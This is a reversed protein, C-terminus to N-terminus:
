GHHIRGLYEEAYPVRVELGEITRWQVYLDQLFRKMMFRKAANHRHGKSRESWGAEQELRNKYPYYYDLAYSNGTRIFNEAGIGVLVTRLNGNFPSVFGPTRRDGRVLTDTPEITFTGDPHDVRKKGRVEGPNLGAFQWMKSVTTAKRIDFEAILTAALVPGVGKVGSLWRTYIPFRGLMTSLDREADKEHRRMAESMLAFRQADVERMPRERVNQDSGDAKRAIRNDMGIRTLQFDKRVRVMLRLSQVDEPTYNEERDTRRLRRLDRRIEQEDREEPVDATRTPM